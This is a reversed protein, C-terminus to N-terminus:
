TSAHLAPLVESAFTRMSREADEIPLGAFRFCCTSTSTGSSSAVPACASSCRRRADGLGARRPVDRVDRELGIARLLDVASGYAEYGKAEKFHDSVLEYHQMVSTLYGAIHESPRTRPGPPTPTATSSTAPSRRRRAGARARGRFRSATPRSRRRGPGGVPAPQLGGHPRRPRRGRAVRTPRCPRRLLHPRPLHPDARAPHRHPGPPYYPGDGEIFGRRSRTSCWARRRTSAARAVRGHPHRLGRVRPPGAWARHRVAGARGLPPRAARDERGGALSRELAPDGRGTGLGIRQTRAAM